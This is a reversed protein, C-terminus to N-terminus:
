LVITYKGVLFVTLTVAFMLLMIRAVCYWCENSAQVICESKSVQEQNISSGLAEKQKIM